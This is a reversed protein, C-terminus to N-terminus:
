NGAVTKKQPKESGARRCKECDFPFAVSFGKIHSSLLMSTCSGLRASDATCGMREVTLHRVIIFLFDSLYTKKPINRIRVISVFFFCMM